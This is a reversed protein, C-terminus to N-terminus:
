TIPSSSRDGAQQALVYLLGVLTGSNRIGGNAIRHAVDSLSVWRMVQMETTDSPEAVRTVDGGLFVHHPSRVMGIMPEFTVVHQLAGARYGTEEEVERAAAEAPDEGTEVLGGPLEWNWVDSAFRHRWMLLVSEQARDLLVVMAAAPLTVVHHEFRQGDPLEVDVKSLRVWRHDYLTREGRVRWASGDVPEADNDSVQENNRCWPRRDGSGRSASGVGVGCEIQTCSLRCMETDAGHHRLLFLGPSFVCATTAAAQSTALVRCLEQM